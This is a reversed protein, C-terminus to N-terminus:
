LRPGKEHKGHGEAPQQFVPVPESCCAFVGLFCKAALHRDGKKLVSRWLETERQSLAPTLAGGHRAALRNESDKVRWGGDEM